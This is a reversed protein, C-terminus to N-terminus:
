GAVQLGYGEDPLFESVMSCFSEQLNYHILRQM